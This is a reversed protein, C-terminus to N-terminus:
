LIHTFHRFHPKLDWSVSPPNKLDEARKKLATPAHDTAIMDITGDTIGRVLEERDEKSRLPPNMKFSGNEKLRSDDLILYHPATECTIDVGEAKAQRILCVSEKTSIHCVHYKCGTQKALAIDREIMKWESESSIGRHNHARAYEGKHIYGGDLLSNVECHASILKGLAKAREMAEKMIEGDQVGKGDDSFGICFGALEELPSIEEGKQGVTISAFPHVRMVADRKIIDLQANINEVSDPVPNLNPMTFVDTFGGALASQSGTKVTEKYSFGPQRFHVHVDCFGPFVFYESNQFDKEKLELSEELASFVAGKSIKICDDGSCIKSFNLNINDSM